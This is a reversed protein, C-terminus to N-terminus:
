RELIYVLAGCPAYIFGGAIFWSKPSHRPGGNRPPTGTGIFDGSGFDVDPEVSIVAEEERFVGDFTSLFRVRYSKTYPFCGGRIPQGVIVFDNQAIDSFHDTSSLIEVTEAGAPLALMLSLSFLLTRM